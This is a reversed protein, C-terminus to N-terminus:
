RGVGRRYRMGAIKDKALSARAEADRRYGEARAERDRQAKAREKRKEERDDARVAASLRKDKAKEEATLKVTGHNLEVYINNKLLVNLLRLKGWSKKYEVKNKQLFHILDDKTHGGYDKHGEEKSVSKPQHKLKEAKKEEKEKIRFQKIKTAVKHRKEELDRAINPMKKKTEVSLGKIEKHIAYEEDELKSIQEEITQPKPREWQTKKNIDDIYFYKDGQRQRRWGPPLDEDAKKPEAKQAEVKAKMEGIWMPEGKPAAKKPAAKKPGSIGKGEWPVKYSMKIKSPTIKKMKTKSGEWHGSAKLREIMVPFTTGMLIRNQGKNLNHTKIYHKVQGYNWSKNPKPM